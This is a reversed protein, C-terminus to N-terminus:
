YSRHTVKALLGDPANGLAGSAARIPVIEIAPKTWTPKPTQM